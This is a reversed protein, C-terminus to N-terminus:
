RSTLDELLARRPSPGPPLAALERQLAERARPSGIRALATLADSGLRPDGVHRLLVSTADEGGLLGLAKAANKRARLSPDRELCAALAPVSAATGARGLLFAATARVDAERHDLAGLLVREAFPTGSDAIASLEASAGPADTAALFSDIRERLSPDPASDPGPAPGPTEEPLLLAGPGQATSGEPAKQRSRIGALITQLYSAFRDDQSRMTLDAIRATDGPSIRAQLIFVAHFLEQAGNWALWPDDSLLDEMSLELLRSIREERDGQGEIALIRRVVALKLKGVDDDLFFRGTLGWLHPTATRRAFVLVELGAEPFQEDDGALVRAEPGPDEGRLVESVKLRGVATGNPLALTSVVKARFLSETRVLVQRGLLSVFKEVEAPDPASEEAGLAGAALLLLALCLTLVRRDSAM